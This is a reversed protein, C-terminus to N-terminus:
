APQTNSTVKAIEEAFALWTTANLQALQAVAVAWRAPIASVFASWEAESITNANLWRLAERGRETRLSPDRILKELIVRGDLPGDAPLDRLRSVVGGSDEARQPPPEAASDRGTTRRTQQQLDRGLRLQKVVHHATSLSLGSARAVERISAGPHERLYRVARQRGEAANLPRSRGDLGIRANSEPIEPTSRNRVAAVTKDSLGTMAGIYRDSFERKWSLIRVAAAKRDALSLPLGHTVNQKVSLLFAEEDDGDFFEVAIRDRGKLEAARLRHVGDIVRMTSRHILIPPLLKEIEALRALHDQDVGALRPYNTVSLVKIPLTSPGNDPCCSESVQMDKRLM